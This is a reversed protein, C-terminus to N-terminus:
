ALLYTGFGRSEFPYSLRARLLVAHGLVPARRMTGWGETAQRSVSRSSICASTVIWDAAQPVAQTLQERGNRQDPAPIFYIKPAHQSGERSADQEPECDNERRERCKAKHHRRRRNGEAMALVGSMAKRMAVHDIVANGFPPADVIV